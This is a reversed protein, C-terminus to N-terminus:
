APDVNSGGAAHAFHTAPRLFKLDLQAQDGTVPETTSDHELGQQLIREVGYVDLLEFRL